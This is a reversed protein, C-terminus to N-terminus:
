LIKTFTRLVPHRLCKSMTNYWTKFRVIILPWRVGKTSFLILNKQCKVCRYWFNLVHICKRQTRVNCYFTVHYIFWHSNLLRTFHLYGIVSLRDRQARLKKLFDCNLNWFKLITYKLLLKFIYAFTDFHSIQNFPFSLKRHCYCFHLRVYKFFIDNVNWVGREKSPCKFRGICYYEATCDSYM